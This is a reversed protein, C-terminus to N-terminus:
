VLLLVIATVLVGLAMVALLGAAALVLARQHGDGSRAPAPPALVEGRDSLEDRPPVTETSVPQHYTSTM